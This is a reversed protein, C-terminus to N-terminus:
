APAALLSLKRWSRLEWADIVLCLCQIFFAFLFSYAIWQWLTVPAFFLLSSHISLVIALCIVIIVRVRLQRWPHSVALKLAKGKLQHYYNDRVRKLRNQVFLILVLILAASLLFTGTVQWGAANLSFRWIWFVIHWSSFLALRLSASWNQHVQLRLEGTEHDESSRYKRLRTVAIHASIQGYFMLALCFILMWLVFQRRIDPIGPSFLGLDVDIFLALMTFISLTSRLQLGARASAARERAKQKQEQKADLPLFLPISVRLDTGQGPTSKIQVTGDLALAREQINALGMGKRAGQLDFGQGDDQITVHLAEDDHRITCMVQQARAHRAINAFAEQVIRFVAEQMPPPCRDLPLSMIEVKVQAGSRYELAQAQTQIAEEISTHELASSRLQQLLAQMEVQAETASQQIDALAERARTVNTELQAQAVIASMRISFIQQKISDHLDRALRNREATAAAESVQQQLQQRYENISNGQRRM